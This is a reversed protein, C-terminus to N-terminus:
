HRFLCRWAIIEIFWFVLWAHLVKAVSQFILRLILRALRRLRRGNPIKTHM